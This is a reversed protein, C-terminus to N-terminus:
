DRKINKYTLFGIIISVVIFVDVAMLLYDKKNEGNENKSEDNKDSNITREGSNDNESVEKNVSYAEELRKKVLM